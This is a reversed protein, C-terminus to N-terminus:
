EVLYVYYFLDHRVLTYTSLHPNTIILQELFDEPADMYVVIKDAKQLKEDNLTDKEDYKIYFIQEFPWLQDDVYWCRYPQDSSFVMILPYVSNEQSFAVKEADEEYLFLVNKKLYGCVMPVLTLAAICAATIRYAMPRKGCFDHVHEINDSLVSFASWVSYAMFPLLLSIVPYFYRCAASGVILATGCLLIYSMILAFLVSLMRCVFNHVNEWGNKRVLLIVLITLMVCFSILCPYM